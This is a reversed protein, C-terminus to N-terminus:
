HKKKRRYFYIYICIHITSMKMNKKRKKKERKRKKIKIILFRIFRVYRRNHDYEVPRMTVTLTKASILWLSRSKIFTIYSLTSVHTFQPTARRKHFRFMARDNAPFISEAYRGGGRDVGNRLIKWKNTNWVRNISGSNEHLLFADLNILVYM